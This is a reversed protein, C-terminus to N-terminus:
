LVLGQRKDFIRWGNSDRLRVAFDEADDAHKFFKAPFRVDHPRVAVVTRLPHLTESIEIILPERIMIYPGSRAM